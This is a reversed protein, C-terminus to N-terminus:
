CQECLTISTYGSDVSNEHNSNLISQDQEKISEDKLRQHIIIEPELNRNLFISSILLLIIIGLYTGFYVNPELDKGGFLVMM